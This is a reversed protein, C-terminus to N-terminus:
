GGVEFYYGKIAAKFKMHLTKTTKGQQKYQDTNLGMAKRVRFCGERNQLKLRLHQKVM